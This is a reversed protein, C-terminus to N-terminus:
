IIELASVVDSFFAADLSDTWTWPETYCKKVHQNKVTPLEQGGRGFGLSYYWGSDATRSHKNLINTDVRWTQLGEGNAVQPRAM